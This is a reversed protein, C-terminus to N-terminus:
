TKKLNIYGVWERDTKKPRISECYKMKNKILSESEKDM